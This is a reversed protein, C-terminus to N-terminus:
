LSFDSPSAGKGSTLNASLRQYHEYVAQLNKPLSTLQTRAMFHEGPNTRPDMAYSALHIPGMAVIARTIAFRKALQEQSQAHIGLLGQIYGEQAKPHQFMRAFMNTGAAIEARVSNKTIGLNTTDKYRVQTIGGELYVDCTNPAANYPALVPSSGENEIM